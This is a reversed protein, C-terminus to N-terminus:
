WVHEKETDAPGITRQCVGCMCTVGRSPMSCHSYCAMGVASGAAPVFTCMTHALASGSSKPRSGSLRSLSACHAGARDLQRQQGLSSADQAGRRPSDHAQDSSQWQGSNGPRM